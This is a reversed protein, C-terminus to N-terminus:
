KGAEKELEALRKELARIRKIYDPLAAIAGYERMKERHPRAPYGSVTEGASVSGIVGGQAGVRAMDGITVHDKIGAQGGLVVGDGITVSGAVGAQSVLVCCRGVRVNHGVQVLNDLKTGFGIVTVGTKARDICSNAGVEVEDGLEVTGLQPVKKLMYGLPIYGFGDAGIVCGAHLICRRGVKVRPYLVANYYIVTGEGVTCGDGIRAGPMLVVRDGLTVGDGVTVNAGIHVEAGLTTGAGIQASPHVGPPAKLPPAIAELVRVFAARPNTTRILPKEVAPVAQGGVAPVLVAAAHSRMAAEFYRESEAFVLAGPEAEEVSAVGTIVVDADGVVEGEVLAAIERVSFKTQM